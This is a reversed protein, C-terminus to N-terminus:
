AQKNRNKGKGMGYHTYATERRATAVADRVVSQAHNKCIRGNRWVVYGQQWGL